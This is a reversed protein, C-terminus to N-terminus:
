YNGGPGDTYFGYAYEFYSILFNVRAMQYSLEFVTPSEFFLGPSALARLEEVCSNVDLAIIYLLKGEAKISDAVVSPVPSSINNCGDSILVVVQKNGYVHRDSNLEDQAVQLAQGIGTACRTGAGEAIVCPTNVRFESLALRAERFDTTLPLDLTADSETLAPSGPTEGEIWTGAFSAVAVQSDEYLGNLFMKAATIARDVRTLGQEDRLMMSASRDLLIIGDLPRVTYAHGFATVSAPGVVELTTQGNMGQIEALINTTGEGVPHAQGLCDITAVSTESSSWVVFQSVDEVHGDTFILKATFPWDPQGVQAFGGEHIGDGGAVELRLVKTLDFFTLEKTCPNAVEATVTLTASLTANCAGYWNANSDASLLPDGTSPANYTVSVTVEGAAVGRVYFGQDIFGPDDLFPAEFVGDTKDNFDTNTRFQAHTPQDFVAIDEDSTSWIQNRVPYGVQGNSYTVRINFPLRTGIKIEAEAPFIEVSVCNIEKGPTDDGGGNVNPNGDVTPTGPPQPIGPNGAILPIGPDGQTPGSGGNGDGSGSGCGSSAPCSSASKIYSFDM